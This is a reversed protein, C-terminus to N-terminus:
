RWRMEMKHGVGEADATHLTGTKRTLQPYLCGSSLKEPQVEDAEEEKQGM